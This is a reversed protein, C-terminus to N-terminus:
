SKPIHIIVKTGNDSDEFAVLLKRSKSRNLMELRKRAVSIGRSVYKSKTKIAKAASRGIGNDTIICLIYEDRNYFEIQLIKKSTSSPMLGHIIANEVYPQILFLPIDENYVDLEKDVSISYEFSQNFRLSELDLYLKLLEIERNLSVSIEISNELIERLLHSFKGLYQLARAKDHTTILHQISNLANFIFHPNIQARLASQNALGAEKEIKLKDEYMSRVRYAIGAAFVLSEASAGIMMYEVNVTFMTILAGTVFIITGIVVFCVLNSKRFIWLHVVGYLAFLSMLYRQFNMLYTDYSSFPSIYLILIDAVILFLLLWALIVIAKNLKPYNVPINLFSRIFLLYALNIAIQIVSILIHFFHPLTYEGITNTTTYIQYYYIGQFLLFLCYFLYVNSRANIFLLLNLIFLASALGLFIYVTSKRELVEQFFNYDHIIHKDPNIYYNARLWQIRGYAGNVKILIYREALLEAKTLPIFTRNILEHRYKKDGLLSINETRIQNSENLYVSAIEFNFTNLYITDYADFLYMYPKLDFRLWYNTEPALYRLESLKSFSLHEKELLTILQLKNDKNEIEISPSIPLDNYLYLSRQGYVFSSVVVLLILISLRKKM